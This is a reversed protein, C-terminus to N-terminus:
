AMDRGALWRCANTFLVAYGKWDLFEQPCWHPAIDSAWALTRGAGVERVALLPDGSVEAVLHADEKLGFRNYGLLVPWRGGDPVGAVVPHGADVLLPEAGEPTEVRDDYQAIVAPLVEEVASGHFFGKGEFGQFSLYGGAMALGGGATRVWEALVKLRNPRRRGNLWTDQHLLLSNAGIDSLIVVDFAALEAVSQPFREPVEHAPLHTVTMGDAELVGRLPEIGTHFTVSTFADFGKYHTSQSVWSEGAVLVRLAPPPTM